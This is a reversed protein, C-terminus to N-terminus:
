AHGGAALPRNVAAWQEAARRAVNIAGVHDANGSYNCPLMPNTCAFVAQTKRNDKSCYGCQPCTRSTNHPDVLFVPVGAWAAKCAAKYTVFQRLQFFAWAHRASRNARRVTTRARMGSLDELALAKHAVVAKRILQKAIVPNTDTQFRRERGSMQRLRRQANKTGVKQVRQRRLHYRARVAKVQAGSFSEGASDTALNVIGLDIGLVGTDSEAADPAERSQSVHLYSVGRRWVLDAGGIEWAPDVLMKHQRAGLVLRCVVRGALTNLSVRDLSMLRYTRADYRISGRPGTDRQKAKVAKVAEVAQARAV